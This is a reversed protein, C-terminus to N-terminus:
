RPVVRVTVTAVHVNTSGGPRGALDPDDLRACVTTIGGPVDVDAGQLSCSYQGEIAGTAAISCSMTLNFNCHVELDVCGEYHRISKQQLKIVDDQNVIYVWYGVDMVVPIDVIELPVYNVPWVNCRVEGASVTTTLLATAWFVIWRQRSM